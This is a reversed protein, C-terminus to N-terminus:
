LPRVSPRCSPCVSPRVSMALSSMLYNKKYRFFSSFFLRININIYINTDHNHLLSYLFRFSRELIHLWRKLTTPKIICQYNPVFDFKTFISMLTIDINKHVM